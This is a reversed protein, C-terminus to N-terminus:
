TWWPKREERKELTLTTVYEVVRGIAEMCDSHTAEHRADGLLGLVEQAQPAMVGAGVRASAMAGMANGLVAASPWDLGGLFGAILGAAFSDGAGTSDQTKVSFAPVRVSGDETAILCGGRGLKLAVVRIGQDLLARACNEPLSYGTLAQAEAFSPFLINVAPLLARM